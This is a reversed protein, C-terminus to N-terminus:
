LSSDIKKKKKKKKKKKFRFTQMKGKGRFSPKFLDRYMLSQRISRRRRVTIIKKYVFYM